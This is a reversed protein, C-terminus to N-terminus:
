KETLMDWRTMIGMLAETRKGSATILIAELLPHERYMERVEEVTCSRPVFRHNPRTEEEKFLSRVPIDEFDVLTFEGSIHHAIWRTIGNETLLGKFREGDFVPFQSYDRENIKRLVSALDDSLQVSEVKCQYKPLVKPPNMLRDRVAELRRVVEESPVAVQPISKTRRHVILNRIEGVLLLLDLD